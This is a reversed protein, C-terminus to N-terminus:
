LILNMVGYEWYLLNYPAAVKYGSNRYEAEFKSLYQISFEKVSTQRGLFNGSHLILPISPHPSDEILGRMALSRKQKSYVMSTSM